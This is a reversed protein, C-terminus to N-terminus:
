RRPLDFALLLALVRRKLVPLLFGATCLALGYVNTGLLLAHKGIGFAWSAPIANAAFLLGLAMGPWFALHFSAPSRGAVSHLLFVPALGMVMTGSVTTAALIDTGFFIPINGLAALAIMAIAGARVSLPGAMGLTRPLDVAAAKSISAFASDLTSGAANVMVVTMLFTAGLGLSRAVAAPANGGAEIGEIRAHIGVLSFLLIAVFGAAGAVFFAKLMAREETIFARDTLVPDHFPYSLVQL